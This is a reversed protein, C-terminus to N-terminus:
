VYLSKHHDEGKVQRLKKQITEIEKLVREEEELLEEVSIDVNYLLGIKQIAVAAAKPDPRTIDAYPLLTLAPFSMIEFISLMTALPGVIYLYEEIKSANLKEFVDNHNSLYKKTMAIKLDIDQEKLRNDLGGILVAERIGKKVLFRTLFYPVRTMEKDSFPINPIFFVFDDALYFEYPTKISDEMSVFPPTYATYLFGIRRGKMEKVLHRLAIWGTYGVGHFGTILVKDKLADKKVRLFINKM